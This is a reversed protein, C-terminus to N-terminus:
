QNPVASVPPSRLFQSLKFVGEDVLAQGGLLALIPQRAQANLTAVRNTAATTRRRGCSVSEPYKLLEVWKLGGGHSTFTYHANENTLVVLEEPAGPKPPIFPTQSAELPPAVNTAGALLNTKPALTNTPSIPAPPYLRPALHAWLLFLVACIILVIVSKRDM